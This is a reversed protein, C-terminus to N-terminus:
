PHLDRGSVADLDRSRRVRNDAMRFPVHLSWTRHRARGAAMHGQQSARTGGKQLGRGSAGDDRLRGISRLLGHTREEFADLHLAFTALALKLRDFERDRLDNSSSM